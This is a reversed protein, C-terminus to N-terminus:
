HLAIEGTSEDGDMANGAEDFISSGSAPKLEVTEVGTPTGDYDLQM